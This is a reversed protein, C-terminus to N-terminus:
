HTSCARELRQAAADYGKIHQAMRDRAPKLRQEWNITAKAAGADAQGERQRLQSQYRDVERSISRLAAQYSSVSQQLEHHKSLDLQSLKTDLARYSAALSAYEEAGLTEREYVSAIQGLDANVVDTIESCADLRAFSNCASSILLALILPTAVHSIRPM